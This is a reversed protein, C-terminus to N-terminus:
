IVMKTMMVDDVDDNDADNSDNCWFTGIIFPPTLPAKMFFFPFLQDKPGVPLFHVM